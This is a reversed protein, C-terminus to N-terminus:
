TVVRRLPTKALFISTVLSLGFILVPSTLQWVLPGVLLGIPSLWDMFLLHVAYIGLVYQGYAGVRRDLDSDPQSLALLAVGVGFPVTGLLYDHFRPSLDWQLKLFLAELTYLVLGTLAMGIAFPKSVQPTRNRFAIGIAFFLTSFFIGDRTNFQLDLGLPMLRYSGGLLGIIYLVAGLVLFTRDDRRFPWLAYLWATLILSVLFWL